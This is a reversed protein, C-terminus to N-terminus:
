SWKNRHLKRYDNPTCNNAKKFHYFFNVETNFGADISIQFISQSTNELLFEAHNIRKRILYQIPTLGTIKKFEKTFYYKSLNAVKAIDEVHLDDSFREEIFSKAKSILKENLHKEEVAEVIDLESLITFIHATLKYPQYGKELSAKIRSYVVRVKQPNMVSILGKEKNETVKEIIEDVCPGDIHLIYYACNHSSVKLKMGAKIVLINNQHFYKYKGDKVLIGQGNKFFFLLYGKRFDKTFDFIYEDTSYVDRFEKVFLQSGTVVQPNEPKIHKCYEKM